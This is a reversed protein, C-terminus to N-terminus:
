FEHKGDDVHDDIHLHSALRLQPLTVLGGESFSRHVGNAAECRLTTSGIPISGVVELKCLEREGL